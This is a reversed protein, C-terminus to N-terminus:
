REGGTAAGSRWIGAAVAGATSTRLVGDSIRVVRAGVAVFADVEEDTIGGEPGVVLVVEERVPLDLEGIGTAASEHLVLLTAGGHDACVQATTVPDTVEPVWLRRSQKTAERATSRWKEVAKVGREGKWRVISRTALWPRIRRVGVETMMEVALEARDGKALAQVVTVPRPDPAADVVEDISVVLGTKDVEVVSAYVVRGAGDGVLVQEGVGIRRVVAAHRGEGGRLEVTNGIRPEAPLDGLFLPRTM